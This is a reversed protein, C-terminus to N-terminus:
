IAFTEAQDIRRQDQEIRQEVERVRIAMLADVALLAVAPEGASARPRRHAPRPAPAPSASRGRPRIPARRGTAAATGRTSVM